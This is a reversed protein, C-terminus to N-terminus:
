DSDDENENQGGRFQYSGEQKSMREIEEASFFVPRPQKIGAVKFYNRRKLVAKVQWWAM